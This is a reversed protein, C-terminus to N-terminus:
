FTKRLNVIDSMISNQSSATAWEWTIDLTNIITTDFTSNNVSIFNEGEWAGGGGTTVYNIEGQTVIEAVGSAGIQRITFDMEIEFVRSSLSPLTLTGSTALITSGSKIRLNIDSNNQCSIEGAIKCHYSDGVVFSDAPVSLSGQSTAGQFISTEIATSVIPTSSSTQSYLGILGSASARVVSGRIKATRYVSGDLYDIDFFDDDGLSTRETSYNHIKQTM